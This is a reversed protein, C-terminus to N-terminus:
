LAAIRRAQRLVADRVSATASDLPGAIRALLMSRGMTHPDNVAITVVSSPVIATALAPITTIGMGAAVFGIRASWSELEIVVHPDSISPWAGFQPEGGRGRGAIWRQDVLDAVTVRDHHALPHARHVAVRLEGSPLPETEIGTLDWDPLGDGGAILALDLRGARLRRLQLPTSSETFLVELSPHKAAIDAIAHPILDMAATPFADIRVRGSVPQVLDTLDRQAGELQDLVATARRGLALAAPTPRVGRPGREFLQTGAADELAAIQKSLASQTYGLYESAATFSGNDLVARLARFLQPHVDLDM